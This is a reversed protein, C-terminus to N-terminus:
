MNFLYRRYIMEAPYRLCGIRKLCIDVDASVNWISEHYKWRGSLFVRIGSFDGCKLFPSLLSLTLNETFTKSKWILIKEYVSSWSSYIDMDQEPPKPSESYAALWEWICSGTCYYYESSYDRLYSIILLAVVIKCWSKKIIRYNCIRYLSCYKEHLDPHNNMQLVPDAGSLIMYTMRSM